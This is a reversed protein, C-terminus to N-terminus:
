KKENKIKKYELYTKAVRLVVYFLTFVAILFSVIPTLNDIMSAFLGGIGISVTKIDEMFDSRIFNGM